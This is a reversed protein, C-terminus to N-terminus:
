PTLGTKDRLYPVLLTIPAQRRITIEARAITGTSLPTEPGRGQSWAYGTPTDAAAALAVRARYPAGRASFNGVLLPNHLEALMGDATMPFESVEVIRGLVTGFEEKKVTAPEIRVEMGPTVKKGHEPPLYLALAMGKGATEISLIPQGSAVVTGPSAKVETVRGAHPSVIRANRPIKNTLDQVRRQADNVAEEAAFVERDRRSLLELEDAELRLINSRAQRVEQDAQDMRQRTEQVYRQTLFGRQAVEEERRLSDAYFGRRQSASAVISEFNAKQDASNRRRLAIEREFRQVIAARNAQKEGLVDRAQSLDEEAQGSDLTAVMDGPQVETGVPAVSAIRGPSPSMADFVQGGQAVLIGAGEVRTPITGVVSWAAAGALLLALALLALWGVPSTLTVLRDLQEPSSLRELAAKRFITDTM